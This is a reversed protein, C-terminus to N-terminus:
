GGERATEGRIPKPPLNVIEDFFFEGLHNIISQMSLVGLSTKNEDVLPVHRYGGSVMKNLAYAIHDDLRLCEPNKTMYKSIKENDLNLRKGLVKIMADRETFIGSICNDKELLVCGMSNKQLKNIVDILPVNDPLSIFKNKPLISIPDHLSFAVNLKQQKDNKGENFMQELEDDFIDFM